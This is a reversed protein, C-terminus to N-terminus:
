QGKAQDRKPRKLAKAAVGRNFRALEVPARVHRGEGILEVGDKAEVAFTVTKGNWELVEARATVTFGTPTLSLHKVDVGAGVSIWGPPLYPQIATTAALEMLYIMFPTGYVEPMDDHFHAVTKDRTVTESLAAWAGVPIRISAM